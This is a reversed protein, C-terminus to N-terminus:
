HWTRWDPLVADLYEIHMEPTPHLDRHVYLKEKILHFFDKANFSDCMDQVIEPPIDSELIEGSTLKSLTPWDEGAYVEYSEGSENLESTRSTWDYNWLVEYASPLISELTTKYLNKYKSVTISNSLKDLYSLRTRESFHGDLPMMSFFIYRCGISDLITKAAHIFSCDRIFFGVPDVYELFEKKFYNNNYMNGGSQWKGKSWHDYRTVGSWMIAVTDTLKIEGCIHSKTLEHLIYQNGAGLRGHNVFKNYNKGMHNAWTDWHYRTFSCGYTYLTSM